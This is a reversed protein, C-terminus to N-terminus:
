RSLYWLLVNTFVSGLFSIAIWAPLRSVYHDTTQVQLRVVEVRSVLNQILNDVLGISAAYKVDDRVSDVVARLNAIDQAATTQGDKLEAVSMQLLSAHSWFAEIQDNFESELVHKLKEKKHLTSM